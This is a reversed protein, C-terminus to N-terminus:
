ESSAAAKGREPPSYLKRDRAKRGAMPNMAPQIDAVTPKAAGIAKAAMAKPWYKM